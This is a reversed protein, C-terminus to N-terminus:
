AWCTIQFNEELTGIGGPLAIFANSNNLMKWIMNHMTPVRLEEGVIKRAFNGEALTTSISGGVHAAISVCRM